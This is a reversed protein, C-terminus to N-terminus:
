LIKAVHQLHAEWNTSYILIYEFFVLVFVWLYPKIIKNMLCQFTSPANYLGFPMVLFEYHDEHTCFATKPIGEEKMTIQHYRCRLDLKTFYQAGHLENLIYDIVLMPFNDKITLKNLVRFDPCM